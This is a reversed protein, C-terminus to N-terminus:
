VKVTRQRNRMDSVVLGLKHLPSIFKWPLSKRIKHIKKDLARTRNIVKNIYQYAPYNGRFECMIELWAAAFENSEFRLEDRAVKGLLFYIKASLSVAQIAPNNLLEEEDSAHRHLKKDLFHNVYHSAEDPDIVLGNNSKEVMRILEVEPQKLLSDYNVIIRNKGQTNEIASVMHMVWFLLCSELREGSLHSYSRASSLPNRLAIVYCENLKLEAFVRQWFPLLKATRPDKFGWNTSQSIRKELLNVADVHLTALNDSHLKEVDILQTSMWAEGLLSFLNRNIKYVIDNDEWFGTPNWIKDARTLNEGLDVGVVGLARAVASTGGRAMGLVVYITKM